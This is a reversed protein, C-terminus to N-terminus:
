FGTPRTELHNIRHHAHVAAVTTVLEHYSPIAM